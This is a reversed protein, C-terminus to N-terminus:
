AVSFERCIEKHEEAAATRIKDAERSLWKWGMKEANNAQALEM